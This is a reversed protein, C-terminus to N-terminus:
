KPEEPQLAAQIMKEARTLIAGSSLVLSFIVTKTVDAKAVKESLEARLRKIDAEHSAISELATRMRENEAKLKRIKDTQADFLGAVLNVNPDYKIM